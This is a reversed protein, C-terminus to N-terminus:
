NAKMAPIKEALSGSIKSFFDGFNFKIIEIILEFLEDYNGSFDMNLDISKGKKTSYSLLEEILSLVSSEDMHSFLKEFGDEKGLLPGLIKSLRLIISIGKRGMIPNIAYIEDGIKKELTKLNKM